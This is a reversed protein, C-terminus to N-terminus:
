PQVSVTVTEGILLGLDDFIFIAGTGLVVQPVGTDMDGIHTM